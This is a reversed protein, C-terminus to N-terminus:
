ARTSRSPLTRTPSATVTSLRHAERELAAAVAPLHAVAHLRLREEHVAAVAAPALALAARREREVRQDFGIADGQQACFRLQDLCRRLAPLALLDRAAALAADGKPAVVGARSRDEAEDADAREVIRVRQRRVDM